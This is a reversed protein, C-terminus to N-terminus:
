LFLANMGLVNLYLVRCKMGKMHVHVQPGGELSALRLFKYMCTYIRLKIYTCIYTYIHIGHASSPTSRYSSLAQEQYALHEKETSGTVLIDDLFCIVKLMGQLYAHSIICKEGGM